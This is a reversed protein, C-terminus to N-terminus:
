EFGGFCLFQLRFSLDWGFEIPENPISESFIEEGNADPKNNIKFESSNNSSTCFMFHMLISPIIQGISLFFFVFSVNKNM